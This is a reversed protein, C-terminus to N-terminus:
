NPSLTGNANYITYDFLPTYGMNNLSPIIVQKERVEGKCSVKANIKYNNFLDGCGTPVVAIGLKGKLPLVRVEYLNPLSLDVTLSGGSVLYSEISDSPAVVDGCPSVGLCYLKMHGLQYPTVNGSTDMYVHKVSFLHNGSGAPTFYLKASCGTLGTAGGVNLAMAEGVDYEIASDKDAYSITTIISSSNTDECWDSASAIEDFISTDLHNDVFFTRLRDYDYEIIHDADAKLLAGIAAQLVPLDSSVFTDLINDAQELARQSERTDVVAGKNRIMRSYLSAGLVTAVVLVIMIIAIAQGSYKKM